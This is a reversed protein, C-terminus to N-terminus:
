AVYAPLFAFASVSQVVVFGFALTVLLVPLSMSRGLMGGEFSPAGAPLRPLGLLAAAAALAFCLALVLLFAHASAQPLMFRALLDATAFGLPVFGSWIALIPGRWSPPSIAN